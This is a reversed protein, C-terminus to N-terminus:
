SPLCHAGLTDRLRLAQSLDRKLVDNTQSGVSGLEGSGAGPRVSRASARSFADMQAAVQGVLAKIRTTTSKCATSSNQPTLDQLARAKAEKYKQQKEKICTSYSGSDGRARRACTSLDQAFSVVSDAWTGVAGFTDAVSAPHSKGSNGNGGCGALTTFLLLVVILHRPPSLLEPNMGCGTVL